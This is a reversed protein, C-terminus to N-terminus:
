LCRIARFISVGLKVSVEWNNMFKCLSKVDPSLITLEAEGVVMETGAIICDILRNNLGKDNIIECLSKADGISCGDTESVTAKVSEEPRNKIELCHKCYRQFGQSTNFVINQVCNQLVKEEIAALGTILGGIHDEDVHTVFIVDMKEGNHNCFEIINKVNRGCTETGGDILINHKEKDNGYRILICDGENAALLYVDVMFDGVRKIEIVHKYGQM